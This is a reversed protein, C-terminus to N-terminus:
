EYKKGPEPMKVTDSDRWAQIIELIISKAESIIVDAQGAQASDIYFRLTCFEWLYVIQQCGNILGDHKSKYNGFLVILGARLTAIKWAHGAPFSIKKVM